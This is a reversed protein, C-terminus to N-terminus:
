FKTKTATSHWKIRGRRAGQAPHHHASSTLKDAVAGAVKQVLKSFERTQAVWLEFQKRACANMLAPLELPSRLAIAMRALELTANLNSRGAEILEVNLAAASDFTATCAVQVVDTTHEGAERVKEFVDKPHLILDFLTGIENAARPSSYDM